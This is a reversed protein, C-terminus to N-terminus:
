KGTTYISEMRCQPRVRQFYSIVMNEFSRSKNQRPKFKRFESDLEWRRYLGNPIAQCMSLPYLQGADIEVFTKCWNTYDRIVADDM